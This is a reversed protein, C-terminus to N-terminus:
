ISKASKEPGEVAQYTKKEDKKKNAFIEPEPSSPPWSPPPSSSWRDISRNISKSRSRSRSATHKKSKVKVVKQNNNKRKAIIEKKNLKPQKKVNKLQKKNENKNPVEKKNTKHKHEHIPEEVDKVNDKNTEIPKKDTQAVLTPKRSPSNTTPATLKRRKVNPKGDANKDPYEVAIEEDSSSLEDLFRETAREFVQFLNDVM